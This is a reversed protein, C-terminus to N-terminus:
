GGVNQVTLIERIGEQFYVRHSGAGKRTEFGFDEAIQCLRIFRIKKPNAKLEDLRDRRDM